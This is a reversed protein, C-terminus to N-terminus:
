GTVIVTNPLSSLKVTTTAPWNVLFTPTQTHRVADASSMLIAHSVDKLSKGLESEGAPAASTEDTIDPPCVTNLATKFLIKNPMVVEYWYHQVSPDASTSDADLMYKYDTVEIPQILEQINDPLKSLIKAMFNIAFAGPPSGFTSCYVDKWKTGASQFGHRSLMTTCVRVPDIYQAQLLQAPSSVSERHLTLCGLLRELCHGDTPSAGINSAIIWEALDHTTKFASPQALSSGAKTAWGNLLAVRMERSGQAPAGLPIPGVLAIYLRTFDAAAWIKFADSGTSLADMKGLEVVGHEAAYSLRGLNYPELAMEPPVSPGAVIRTFSGSPLKARAGVVDEIRVHALLIGACPNALIRHAQPPLPRPPPPPLSLSM